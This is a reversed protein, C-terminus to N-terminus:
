PRRRPNGDTAWRGDEVPQQVVAEDDGDAAVAVAQARFSVTAEASSWQTLVLRWRCAMILSPTLEEHQLPVLVM